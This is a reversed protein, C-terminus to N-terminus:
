EVCLRKQPCQAVRHDRDGNGGVLGDGQGLSFPGIDHQHVNPQIARTVADISGLVNERPEAYAAYEYSRIRVWAHALPCRRHMRQAKDLFGECALAQAHAQVPDSSAMLSLTLLPQASAHGHIVQLELVGFQPPGRRSSQSQVAWNLERTWQMGEKYGEQCQMETPGMPPQPASGQALAATSVVALACMVVTAKLM